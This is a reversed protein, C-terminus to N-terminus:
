RGSEVLRGILGCRWPAWGDRQLAYRWIRRNLKPVRVGSLGDRRYRDTFADSFLVNLPELDAESPRRPGKLSRTASYESM